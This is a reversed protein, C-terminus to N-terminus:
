IPMTHPEPSPVSASLIVSRIMTGYLVNSPNPSLVPADKVAELPHNCAFKNNTGPCRLSSAKPFTPSTGTTAISPRTHGGDGENGTRYTNVAALKMGIFAVREIGHYIGDPEHCSKAYFVQDTRRM